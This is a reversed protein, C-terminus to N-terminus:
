AELVIQERRRVTTVRIDFKYERFLGFDGSDVAYFTSVKDVQQQREFRCSFFNAVHRDLVIYIYIYILRKPTYYRQTNKRTTCATNQSARHTRWFVFLINTSYKRTM